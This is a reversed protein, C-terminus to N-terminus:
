TKFLNLFEKEKLTKVGLEKAKDFKSGREKGVVLYSTSRSVSESTEGGLERIKEHAEERSMSDLTGTVVFTQGAFKQGVRKKKPYEISIEKLLDNLMKVNEKAHFWEFISKVMVGGVDPISDLKELSAQKLKEISEFYEALDLSTKEGVHRIGLGYIFRNFPVTKREQIAKIINAASKEGFRELVALDGEKLEFIDAPYTVLNEQTLRDLIKPGLGRIDFARRSVFHYLFEKKQAPCNNKNACRWVAEGAPRVLKEGCVPCTKPMNFAKEKGSRLEPLAKIVAPIVDGAREIVVTDGIKVGLREIEDQNHLTARSITVGAVQVPELVAVPTIAGTRGVQLKIDLIKTTAQKGSFKFARIGRPGKGAVGLKEFVNNNNVVAVIGDILHPLSDRKKAITEWYFLISATDKCVRATEDTKFGLAKLIEHEESHLTQGLNTVLDYAMFKLPRSLALKPDLQRISGAAVNRPNAFLPVGQKKRSANLKEFDRKGMYVEGRVEIDGKELAKKGFKALSLKSHLELKLPISEITKLNQTVDEGVEGNGRTAGQVFVGKKYLLSVAFGDVKLEAFYEPNKVGSLKSVYEEWNKLEDENFIDEISLMPVRHRVKKFSPLPQGGVRQTPSDPTVLEPFEQELLFLEHKLTDFASDSIEEKDLVHYLYRHRNILSKLKEVRKKAEEKTM